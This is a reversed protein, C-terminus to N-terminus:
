MKNKASANIWLSECNILSLLPCGGGGGGGRLSAPNLAESLPGVATRIDDHAKFRRAEWTGTTRMLWLAVPRGATYGRGGQAGWAWWQLISLVRSLGAPPEFSGRRNSFYVCRHGFVTRKLLGFIRDRPTASRRLRATEGPFRSTLRRPTAASARERVPIQRPRVAPRRKWFVLFSIQMWEARM